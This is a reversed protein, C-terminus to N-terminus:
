NFEGKISVSHENDNECFGAM